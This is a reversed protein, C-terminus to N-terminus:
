EKLKLFREKRRLFLRPVTLGGKYYVGGHCPKGGGVVVKRLYLFFDM